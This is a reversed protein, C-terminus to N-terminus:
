DMYQYLKGVSIKQKIMFILYWYNIIYIKKINSMFNHTILLFLNILPFQVCLAAEHMNQCSM